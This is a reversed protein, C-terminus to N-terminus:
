GQTCATSKWNEYITRAARNMGPMARRSAENLEDLAGDGLANELAVAYEPIAGWNTVTDAEIEVHFQMTLAHQGYSMAQWRCADSSMLCTASQPADLVEASHWQLCQILEPVDHMFANKQGAATLAVELVGIEPTSAPGVEGGLSEALLQHGLCFGLFPMEREVVAERIAAIEDVLWPNEDKQWVDMPGGMVWLARYDSLEPIQEGQDLEVAHWAIDDEQLFSRFSGPHEAEVHQLVLVPKGKGSNSNM